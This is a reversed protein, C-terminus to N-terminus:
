VLVAIKPIYGYSDDDEDHGNDEQDEEADVVSLDFNGGYKHGVGIMEDFLSGFHQGINCEEDDEAETQHDEEDPLVDGKAGAARRVEFGAAQVEGAPLVHQQLDEVGDFEYPSYL